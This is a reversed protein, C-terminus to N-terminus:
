SVTISPNIKLSSGDTINYAGGSFSEVWLLQGSDDASNGIFYGTVNGWDGGSATYTQEAYTAVSDTVSFSGRTLTNRAYGNGSAVESLDSLTATESPETGDTYLGMYYVADVSQSAFLVNSIRNEGENVLKAM